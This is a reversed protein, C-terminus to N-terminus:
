IRNMTVSVQPGNKITQYVVCYRETVMSATVVLAAALAMRLALLLIFFLDASM